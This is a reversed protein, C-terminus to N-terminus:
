KGRGLLGLRYIPWGMAKFWLLPSISAHLGFRNYFIEKSEMAQMTSAMPPFQRDDGAMLCPLLTNGWVCYLDPRSMCGAEDVAIGQAECRKWTSYPEKTSLSPATCVIDAIRVVDELLSALRNKSVMVGQEYEIWDIGQAALARLRCLQEDNDILNRMEHLAVSDDLRLGRVKPSHLLVLLWYAASLHMKWESQGSLFSSPAAKDGDDPCRLLHLLASAEDDIKYGRVVHKYQVRTEDDYKKGENMRGTVSADVHDLRAAFNDVVVDTSGTAYIKGLSSAM